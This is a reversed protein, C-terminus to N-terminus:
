FLDPRRAHLAHILLLTKLDVLRGQIVEAWLANLPQELVEILEHEGEAGGGAGVRDSEGYPALYLALRESCVGPSAFANAVLELDGLHLGLEEVAERRICAEAGEGGEIRGAAAETVYADQGVYLPGVRPLRALLAVRREPDYPLVVAADGHHDLQRTVVEGGPLAVKLLLYRGWGDHIVTEQEIRPKM